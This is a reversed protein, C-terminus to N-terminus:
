VQSVPGAYYADAWGVRGGPAEKECLGFTHFKEFILLSIRVTYFLGDKRTITYCPQYRHDAWSTALKNFSGCVHSLCSELPPPTSFHDSNENPSIVVALDVDLEIWPGDFNEPCKGDDLYELDLADAVVTASCICIRRPTSCLVQYALLIPSISYDVTIAWPKVACLSLLSFVRDRPDACLKFSFRELLSIMDRKDVGLVMNEAYDDYHPNFLADSAQHSLCSSYLLNAGLEVVSNWDMPFTHFWFTCKRALYMEQVVWARAWYKSQFICAALELAYGNDQEQQPPHYDGSDYAKWRRLIKELYATRCGAPPPESDAVERDAVAGSLPPAKGLWIQVSEARSYIDGMQEVQHNRESVDLQNICLADIWIPVSLDMADWDPQDTRTANYRTIWLSDFLNERVRFQHGNLLIVRNNPDIQTCDDDGDSIDWVYSLCMYRDNVSAHSISCQILGEKSFQPLIHILRISPEDHNLPQHRFTEVPNDLLEEFTPPKYISLDLSSEYASAWSKAEEFSDPLPTKSTKSVVVDDASGDTASHSTSASPSRKGKPLAQRPPSSM